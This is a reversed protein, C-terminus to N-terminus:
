LLLHPQYKLQHASRIILYVSIISIMKILPNWNEEVHHGTVNCHAIYECFIKLLSQDQRSLGTIIDSPDKYTLSSIDADTLVQLFCVDTIGEHKITKALPRDNDSEFLTGLVYKIVALHLEHSFM